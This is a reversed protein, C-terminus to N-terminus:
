DPHLPVYVIRPQMGRRRDGRGTESEGELPDACDLRDGNLVHCSRTDSTQFPVVLVPVTTSCLVRYAISGPRPAFVGRDSALGMVILQMGRDRAISGIM